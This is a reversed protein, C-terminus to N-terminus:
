SDEPGILGSPASGLAGRRLVERVRRMTAFSVAAGGGGLRGGGGSAAALAHHLPVAGVDSREGAAESVAYSNDFGCARLARVAPSPPTGARTNCVANTELSVIFHFWFAPLYLVDGPELVVELARAAGVAAIGEPTTWDAATHRAAAGETMLLLEGCEEPPLLVYRKRGRLLAIFNRVADFHAEAIIGRQGFLCHM